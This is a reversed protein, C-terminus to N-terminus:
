SNKKTDRTILLEMWLQRCMEPNMRLLDSSVDNCIVQQNRDLLIVTPVASLGFKLKLKELNQICRDTEEATQKVNPLIGKQTSVPANDSYNPFEPYIWGFEYNEEYFAQFDAYNDECPVYFIQCKRDKVVYEDDRKILGIDDLNWYECYANLFAAVQRAKKDKSCGYFLLTFERVDFVKHHNQINVGEFKMSGPQDLINEVRSKSLDMM